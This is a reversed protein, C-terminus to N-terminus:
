GSAPAGAVHAWLRDLEAGGMDRMRYLRVSVPLGFEAPGAPLLAGRALEDGIAGEPLWAVGAGALAASKLAEAMSNEYHFDLLRNLGQAEVLPTVLRGLFSEPSYCLYPVPRQARLDHRARGRGDPASVPVIRDRALEVSPFRAGDLSMPVGPHSYCLMADCGGSILAEVCGSLNDPVVRTKLKGLAAEIGTLWRPFFNIGLTQLSAFSIVADPRGILGRAEERAYQLSRLVEDARKRFAEGAPTLAVPFVSRDLLRAGIWYELNRIRRSFAPQSVNRTEAARSFNRTVSLTMFDEIWTLEM